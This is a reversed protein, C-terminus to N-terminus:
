SSHLFQLHSTVCRSIASTSSSSDTREAVTLRRVGTPKKRSAKPGAQIPQLQPSKQRVLTADDRDDKDSGERRVSEAALSQPALSRSNAWVRRHHPIAESCEARGLLSQRMDLRASQAALSGVWAPLWSSSWTIRLNTTRNRVAQAEKHTPIARRHTQRRDAGDTVVEHIRQARRVRYDVIGSDRLCDEFQHPRGTIPLGGRRRLSASSPQRTTWNALPSVISLVTSLAVGQASRFIGSGCQGSARSGTPLSSGRPRRRTRM